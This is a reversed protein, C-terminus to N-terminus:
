NAERVIINTTSDYSPITCVLKEGANSAIVTQNPVLNKCVDDATEQSLVIKDHYYYNSLASGIVIGVCLVIMFFVVLGVTENIDMDDM